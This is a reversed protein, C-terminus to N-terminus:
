EECFFQYYDYYDSECAFLIYRGQAYGMYGEEVHYGKM